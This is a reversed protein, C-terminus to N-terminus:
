DEQPPSVAERPIAGPDSDKWKFGLSDEHDDSHCSELGCIRLGYKPCIIKSTCLGQHIDVMQLPPATKVVVGVAPAFAFPIDGLIEKLMYRYSMLQSRSWGLAEPALFILADGAQVTAVIPPLEDTPCRDGGPAHDPEICNEGTSGVRCGYQNRPEAAKVIRDALGCSCPRGREVPHLTACWISHRLESVDDNTM